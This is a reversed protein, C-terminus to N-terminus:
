NSGETSPAMGDKPKPMEGEPKDMRQMGGEQMEEKRMDGMQIGLLSLVDEYTADDGLNAVKDKFEKLDFNKAADSNMFPNEPRQGGDFGEKGMGNIGFEEERTEKFTSGAEYSQEKGDIIIKGGNYYIGDESDLASDPVRIGNVAVTGGNVAIYGNSDVGDGEEGLAANITVEGGAFTLVSTHDENVNMGDDQSNVTINGGNVTLHLESDIGEFGSDVILKGSDGEINMTMYSYLAGDTKRMKKQTKVEDTSDEDKYKTKLMRFVNKGSIYNQSDDALLVTAGANATDVTADTRETEEWANDCEYVNNFIIGPAVSCEIDAGDLILTVKEEESTFAEEGLDVKVQGKWSGTLVYTGAENIHLVKNQAAEEASHMMQTPLTQGLVPLTAFIYDNNTGDKYYYAWEQEGDYNVKQFGSEELLPYYYLEHDIYVNQDEDAKTGTYYEAPANEVEDHVTEPDCNWTYDFEKIANGDMSATEESLQIVKANEHKKGSSAIIRGNTMSEKIVKENSETAGCGTMSLFLSVCIGTVMLKRCKKM